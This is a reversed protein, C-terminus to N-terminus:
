GVGEWISGTLAPMNTAPIMTLGGYISFENVSSGSSMVFIEKVRVDLDIIENALLVFREPGNTTGNVSFGFFLSGTSNNKVVLRKTVFPLVVQTPTNISATTTLVWPMGSTTFEESRNMGPYYPVSLPM